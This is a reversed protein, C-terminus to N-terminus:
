YLEKFGVKKQVAEDAKVALARAFSWGPLATVNFKNWGNRDTEFTERAETEHLDWIKILWDSMGARISLFDMFLLAGHPDTYPDLSLLLRSFEFSTRHCGRRQLDRNEFSLRFYVYLRSAQSV